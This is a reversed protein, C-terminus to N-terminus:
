CLGIRMQIRSLRSKYGFRFGFSLLWITVLIPVWGVQDFGFHCVHIYVQISSLCVQIPVRVSGSYLVPGIKIYWFRGLYLVSGFNIRDSGSKLSGNALLVEWLSNSSFSILLFFDEKSINLHEWRPFIKYCVM